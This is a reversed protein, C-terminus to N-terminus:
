RLLNEKSDFSPSILSPIYNEINSAYVTRKPLTISIFYVNEYIYEEFAKIFTAGSQKILNSPTEIPINVIHFNSKYNLMDLNSDSFPTDITISLFASDFNNNKINELMRKFPLFKCKINHKKSFSSCIKSAVEGLESPILVSFSIKELCRDKNQIRGYLSEVAIHTPLFKEVMHVRDISENLCKRYKLASFKDKINLVLGWTEQISYSNKTKIFKDFEDYNTTYDLFTDYKQIDDIKKIDSKKLLSIIRPYNSDSINKLIWQGNNLVQYKYSGSGIFTGNKFDYVSFLDSSFYKLFNRNPKTITIELKYKTMKKIGELYNVMRSKSENLVNNFCDVVTDATIERGDQLFQNSKIEISIKTPSLFSINQALDNQLIGEPSLSVLKRYLLRSVWHDVETVAEIPSPSSPYSHVFKYYTLTKKDQFDCACLLFLIHFLIFKIEKYM